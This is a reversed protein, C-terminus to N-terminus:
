ERWGTQNSQISIRRSQSISLTAFAQLYPTESPFRYAIVSLVRSLFGHAEILSQEYSTAFHLWYAELFNELVVVDRGVTM